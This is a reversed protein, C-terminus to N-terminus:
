SVKQTLRQFKKQDNTTLYKKQIKSLLVKAKKLQNTTVYHDTIKLLLEQKKSLSSGADYFMRLLTPVAQEWQREQIQKEAKVELAEYYRGIKKFRFVDHILPEAQKTKKMRVFNKALLYDRELQVLEPEKEIPIARM